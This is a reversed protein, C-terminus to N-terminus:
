SAAKKARTVPRIGLDKCIRYLRQRSRNYKRSVEVVSMGRLADALELVGESMQPPHRRTREAAVIRELETIDGDTADQIMRAVWMTMKSM